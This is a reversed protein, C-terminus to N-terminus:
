RNATGRVERYHSPLAVMSDDVSDAEYRTLGLSYLERGSGDRASAQLPLREKALLEEAWAPVQIGSVRELKDVAFTGSLPTVWATVHLPGDDIEYRECDVGSLMQREGTADVRVNRPSDATKLDDLAYTRYTHQANDIVSIKEDWILADFAGKGNLGDLQLRANNGRSLYRLGRQEGAANKLSLEIAGQFSRGMNEDQSPRANDEATASTLPLPTNAAGPGQETTVRPPGNSARNWDWDCACLLVGAVLCLARGTGPHGRRTGPALTASIGRQAAAGSPPETSGIRFLSPKASGRCGIVARRSDRGNAGDSRGQFAM